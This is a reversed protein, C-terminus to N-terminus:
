PKAEPDAQVKDILVAYGGRFGGAVASRVPGSSGADPPAPFSGSLVTM